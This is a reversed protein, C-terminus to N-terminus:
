AVKEVIIKFGHALELVEIEKFRFQEGEITIIENVSPSEETSLYQNPHLMMLDFSEEKYFGAIRM